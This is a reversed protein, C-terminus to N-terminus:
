NDKEKMITERMDEMIEDVGDKGNMSMKLLTVIFFLIFSKIDEVDMNKAFKYKERFKELTMKNEENNM